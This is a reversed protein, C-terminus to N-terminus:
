SNTITATPFIDASDKPRVPWPAGCNECHNFHVARQKGCAPCPVRAPWGRMALFLLLGVPGLLFVAILWITLSRKSLGSRHRLLWLISCCISASIVSLVVMVFFGPLNLVIQEFWLNLALGYSAYVSFNYVTFGAWAIPASCLGLGAVERANLVSVNETLRLPQFTYRKLVTGRADLVVIYDPMERRKLEPVLWGPKYFIYYRTREPNTQFGIQSYVKGDHERPTSFLLRDKIDFFDISKTRMVVLTELPPRYGTRKSASKSQTKRKTYLVSMGEIDDATSVQKLTKGRGKFNYIGDSLWMYGGFINSRILKQKVPSEGAVGVVDAYGVFKWGETFLLIRGLTASYFSIYPLPQYAEYYRELITLYRQTHRFSAVQKGSTIDGIVPLGSVVMKREKGDVLFIRTKSNNWMVARAIETDDLVVYYSSTIYAERPLVTTVEPQTFAISAWQNIFLLAGILLPVLGSLLVISIAVEGARRYFLSQGKEAFCNRVALAYIGSCVVVLWFCQYFEQLQFWFYHLVLCGLLPVLKSGYWRAPRMVCLMAAFYFPVGLLLNAIGGLMFRWDFPIEPFHQRIPMWKLCWLLLFAGGLSISYLVLGAAAKHWFLATHSLPRHILFAWQDRRKEPLVQLVGLVTALVPGVGLTIVPEYESKLFQYFLNIVDNLELSGKFAFGDGFLYNMGIFALAALVAWVVNERVEKWLMAGYSNRSLKKM